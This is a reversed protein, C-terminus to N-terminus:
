LTGMAEVLKRRLLVAGYSADDDIFDLAASLASFAPSNELNARAECSECIDVRAQREFAPLPTSCARCNASTTM